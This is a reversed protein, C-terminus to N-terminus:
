LLSACWVGVVSVVLGSTFLQWVCLGGDLSFGCCCVGCDYLGVDGLRTAFVALVLWCGGSFGVAPTM